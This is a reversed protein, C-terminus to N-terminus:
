MALYFCIKSYILLTSFVSFWCNRCSMRLLILEKAALSEMRVLLCSMAALYKTGSFTLALSLISMVMIYYVLVLPCRASFIVSLSNSGLCLFFPMFLTLKVFSSISDMSSAAM